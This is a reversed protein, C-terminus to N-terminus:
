KRDSTGDEDAPPGNAKVASKAAHAKPQIRGATGVASAGLPADALRARTSAAAIGPAPLQEATLPPNNAIEARV